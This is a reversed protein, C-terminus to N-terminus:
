PTFVWSWFPIVAKIHAAYLVVVKSGTLNSTVSPEERVIASETCPFVASCQAIVAFFLVPAEMMTFLPCEVPDETRVWALLLPSVGAQTNSLNFLKM